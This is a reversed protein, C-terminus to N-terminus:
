ITGEFTEPTGAMWFRVALFVSVLFSFLSTGLSISWVANRRDLARIPPILSLASVLPLLMLIPILKAEWM